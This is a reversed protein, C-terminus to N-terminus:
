VSYIFQPHPNLTLKKGHPTINTSGLYKDLVLYSSSSVKKAVCNYGAITGSFLAIVNGNFVIVKEVSVIISYGAVGGV